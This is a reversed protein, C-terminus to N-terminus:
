SCDKHCNCAGYESLCTVCNYATTCKAFQSVAFKKTVFNALINMKLSLEISLTDLVFYLYCRVHRIYDGSKCSAFSWDKFM